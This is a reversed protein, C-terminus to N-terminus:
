GKDYWPQAKVLLLPFSTFSTGVWLHAGASRQIRNRRWCHPILKELKGRGEVSRLKGKRDIVFVAPIADIGWKDAFDSAAKGVVQPWTIENEKVYDTLESQKRDLSVGIVALGEKGYKDYLKKLGPLEKKCPGCWTAWFDIVIVKGRLDKLSTEKKADVPTFAFDIVTGIAQERRYVKALGHEPFDRAVTELILRRTKTAGVTETLELLAEMHALAPEFKPHDKM